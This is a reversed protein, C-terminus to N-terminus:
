QRTEKAPAPKPWLVSEVGGDAIIDNSALQMTLRPADLVMDGRELRVSGTLVIERASGHYDLRDAHIVDGGYEIVVGPWLGADGSDQSVEGQPASVRVESGDPRYYTVRPQTLRVLGKDKLYDAGDATLRWDTKGDAGRSLEVREMVAQVDVDRALDAVQAAKEGWTRWVYAGAVLALVLAAALYPAFRKM